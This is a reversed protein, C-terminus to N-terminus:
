IEDEEKVDLTEDAFNFDLVMAAADPDNDCDLLLLIEGDATPTVHAILATVNFTGSLPIHLFM